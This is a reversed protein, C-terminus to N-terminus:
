KEVGQPAADNVCARLATSLALLGRPTDIHYHGVALGKYYELPSPCGCHGDVRVEQGFLVHLASAYELPLGPGKASWYYWARTFQWGHLEGVIISKVEGQNSRCLEPLRVISIEAANLEAELQDDIDSRGAYNPFGTPVQRLGSSSIVLPDTM